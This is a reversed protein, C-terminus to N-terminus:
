NGELIYQIVGRINNAITELTPADAQQYKLHTMSDLYDKAQKTTGASLVRCIKNESFVGNNFNSCFNIMSVLAPDRGLQKELKM